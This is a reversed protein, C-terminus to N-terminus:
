LVLIEDFGRIASIEGKKSVITRVDIQLIKLFLFYVGSLQFM